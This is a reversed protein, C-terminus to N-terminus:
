TQQTYGIEGGSRIVGGYKIMKATDHLCELVIVKKRELCFCNMYYVERIIKQTSLKGFKIIYMTSKSQYKQIYLKGKVCYRKEIKNKLWGIFEPAAGSIRLSWQTHNNSRNRWHNICGDGDIVGRIFDSFYKENIELQGMSWTKGAFIGISNLFKYNSIGGVQLVAYKKEKEAERSKMVIKSTIGFECRIRELHEVDKSTISVHRKDKSLSGDTAIYGVVYWFINQNIDNQNKLIAYAIM